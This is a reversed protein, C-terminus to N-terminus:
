WRSLEKFSCGRLMQEHMARARLHIELCCYIRQQLFKQNSGRIYYFYFRFPSITFFLHNRSIIATERSCMKQFERFRSSFFFFFTLAVFRM